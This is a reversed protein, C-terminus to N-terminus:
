VGEIGYKQAARARLAGQLTGESVFAMAGTSRFEEEIEAKWQSVEVPDMKRLERDVKERAEDRRRRIEDGSPGKPASSLVPTPRYPIPPKRKELLRVIAYFSSKPNARVTARIEEHPIGQRNALDRVTIAISDMGPSKFAKFEELTRAMDPDHDLPALIPIELPTGGTGL